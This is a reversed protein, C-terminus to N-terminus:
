FTSSVPYLFLMQFMPYHGLTHIASAKEEGKMLTYSRRGKDRETDSIPWRRVLGFMEPSKM